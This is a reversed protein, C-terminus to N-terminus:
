SVDEGGIDSCEAGWGSSAGTRVGEDVGDSLLIVESNWSLADLLIDLFPWDSDNTYREGSDSSVGVMGIVKLVSTNRGVTLHIGVVGGSVRVRCSILSNVQLVITSVIAVIIGDQETGLDGEM